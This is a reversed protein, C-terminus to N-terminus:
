QGSSRAARSAPRIRPAWTCSACIAANHRSCPSRSSHIASRSKPRKEPRRTRFGNTAQSAARAVARALVAWLERGSRRLAPLPDAELKLGPRRSAYDLDSEGVPQRSAVDGQRLRRHM